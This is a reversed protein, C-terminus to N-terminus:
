GTWRRVRRKWTEPIKPEYPKPERAPYHHREVYGCKRCKYVYVTEHEYHYVDVEMERMCKPCRRVVM